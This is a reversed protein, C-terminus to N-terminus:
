TQLRRKVFLTGALAIGFVVVVVGFQLAAAPVLVAMLSALVISVSLPLIISESYIYLGMTIASFMLFGFVVEGLQGYYPCLIADFFAGQEWAELLDDYTSCSAM